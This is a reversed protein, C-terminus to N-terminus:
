RRVDRAVNIPSLNLPNKSVVARMLTLTALPDVQGLDFDTFKARDAAVALLVINANRGTAPDITDTGVQLSITDVRNARDAEFVEHISRLATCALARSYRSQLERQTLPVPAIDDKARNFRFEKEKPLSAPPPVSVALTLEKTAVDFTHDHDVPFVEPYVSNGLVIGVYEQIASEDNSQLGSILQDLSANEGAAAEERKRCKGQYFLASMSLMMERTQESRQYEAQRQAQLGPVTTLYRRWEDVARQHDAQAAAVADDHKKGGFMRSMGAPRAPPRFVPEPPVPIPQPQPDPVDLGAPDFPPHHAIVRLTELDVFDDVGLTAQLINAIEDNLEQVEATMAQAQAHMWEEHLRKSEAEARKQEAADMRLAAATSRDAARRTQEAIRQAAAVQRSHAVVKRQRQQEALRTQHQMEAWFGRRHAM